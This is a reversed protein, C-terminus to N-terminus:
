IFDEELELLKRKTQMIKLRKTCEILQKHLKRIHEAPRAPQIWFSHGITNRYIAIYGAMSLEGDIIKMTYGELPICSQFTYYEAKPNPKVKDTSKVLNYKKILRTINM